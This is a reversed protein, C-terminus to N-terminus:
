EFGYLRAPNDVLIRRRLAEDPIWTGLSDLLDTTNPMKGKVWVHPWDSAWVIRDPSVTALAKVFPDLDPYPPEMASLRYLGSLKVWVHEHRLLRLLAQFALQQVGESARIFGIHDLVIPVPLKALRDELEVMQHAKILFQIHWGLAKMREAAAELESVPLGGPHALIYRLGRAGRAHLDAYDNDKADEPLVVVARFPIGIQEALEFQATNDTGYLSPQIVVAREIGMTRFLHGAAEPTADPPTYDRDDVYRYKTQPGFLHFHTDTAGKPV